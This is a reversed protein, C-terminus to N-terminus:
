STCRHTYTYTYICIHLYTGPAIAGSREAASGPVLTRVLLLVPERHRSSVEALEVGVGVWCPNPLTERAVTLATLATGHSILDGWWAIGQDVARNGEMARALAASEPPSRQEDAVGKDEAVEVLRGVKHRAAHGERLPLGMATRLIVM